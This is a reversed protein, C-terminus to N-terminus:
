MSDEDPGSITMRAGAVAGRGADRVTGAFTAAPAIRIEVGGTKPRMTTGVDTGRVASISQWKDPAHAIVFTGDDGSEALPWGNVSVIAHAVPGAANVVRGRVSEGRVLKVELGTISSARGIAYDPHVVYASTSSPAPVEGAANTR